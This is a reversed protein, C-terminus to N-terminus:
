FDGEAVQLCTLGADRWMKVVSNRDDLVYAVRDKPLKDLIEKKVITDDRKDAPQRMFIHDYRVGHQKLWAVTQKGVELELFRIPRGSVICVIYGKARLTAVLDIIAQKPADGSVGKYFEYWNKKRLGTGHCSVCKANTQGERIIPVTKLGDCVVCKQPAVVHARHTNDALTGDVDVLVINKYGLDFGPHFHIKGAFLAMREIVARGVQADGLRYEDRQVATRVDVAIEHEVYELELRQAVGRWMNRTSDSLNTNDIIVDQYGGCTIAIEVHKISAKKMEEERLRNFAGTHGFFKRLEDWSVRYVKRGLGEAAHNIWQKAYETKGSGPLGILVILQGSM